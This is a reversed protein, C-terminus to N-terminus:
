AHHLLEHQRVFDQLQTVDKIMDARRAYALWCPVKKLLQEAIMDPDCDVFRRGDGDWFLRTFLGPFVLAHWGTKALRLEQNLENLLETHNDDDNILYHYLTVIFLLRKGHIPILDELLSGILGLLAVKIRLARTRFFLKTKALIRM